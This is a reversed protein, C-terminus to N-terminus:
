IHTYIYLIRAWLQLIFWANTSCHWLLTAVDHLGTFSEPSTSPWPKAQQQLRHARLSRLPRAIAKSTSQSASVLFHHGWLSSSGGSSSKSKGHSEMHIKRHTKQAAVQLACARQGPPTAMPAALVGQSHRKLQKGNATQIMPNTDYPDTCTITRVCTNVLFNIHLGNAKPTGRTKLCAWTSKRISWPATNQWTRWLLNLHIATSLAVVLALTQPIFKTM